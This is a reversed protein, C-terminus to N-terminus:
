REWQLAGTFKWSLCGYDDQAAPALYASVECMDWSYLLGAFCTLFQGVSIRGNISTDVFRFNTEAFHQLNESELGMDRAIGMVGSLSIQANEDLDSSKYKETVQVHAHIHKDLPPEEGPLAL